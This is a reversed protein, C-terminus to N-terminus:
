WRGGTRDIVVWAPGPWKNGPAAILVRPCGQDKGIVVPRRDQGYGGM